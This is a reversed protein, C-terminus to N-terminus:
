ASRLWLGGLILAGGGVAAMWLMFVGPLLFFGGVTLAMVALGLIFIRTMRTALGSLAYLLGIVLPIFAGVAEGSVPALISFAAFFFCFIVSAALLSATAPYGIRADTHTRRAGMRAGIIFSAVGGLPGLIMWVASWDGRWATLGYGIAWIVGWLILHPAAYPGYISETARAQTREITRLTDRADASDVSM